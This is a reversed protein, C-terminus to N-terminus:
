NADNHAFMEEMMRLKDRPVEVGVEFGMMLPKGNPLLLPSKGDPATRPPRILHYAFRTQHFENELASATLLAARLM